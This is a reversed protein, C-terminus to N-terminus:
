RGVLRNGHKRLWVIQNITISLRIVLGIQMFQTFYSQIVNHSESLLFASKVYHDRITSRAQFTHPIKVM